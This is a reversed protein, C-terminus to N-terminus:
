KQKVKQWIKINNKFTGSVFTDETLPILAACHESKELIQKPQPNNRNLLDHIDYIYIGAKDYYGAGIALKNDSLKTISCLADVGNVAHQIVHDHLYDWINISNQGVFIVINESLTEIAEPPKIELKGIIKNNKIDLITMNSKIAVLLKNDPLAVLKYQIVCMRGGLPHTYGPIEQIIDGTELDLIRIVGDEWASALTNNPFSAIARLYGFGRYLSQATGTTTNLITINNNINLALSDDPLAQIAWCEQEIPLSLEKQGADNFVSIEGENEVAFRGDSLPTFSIFDPLDIKQKLEYRDEATQEMGFLPMCACLTAFMFTLKKIM